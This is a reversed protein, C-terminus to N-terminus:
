HKIDKLALQMLFLVHWDVPVIADPGDANDWFNILQALSAGFSELKESCQNMWKVFGDFCDLVTNDYVNSGKFETQVCRIWRMQLGMISFVASFAESSSMFEGVDKPLPSASDEFTSFIETLFPELVQSIKQMLRIDDIAASNDGVYRQVNRCAEMIVPRMFDLVRPVLVRADSREISGCAMSIAEIQTTPKYLGVLTRTMSMVDLSSYKLMPYIETPPRDGRSMELSSLRVVHSLLLRVTSELGQATHAWQAKHNLNVGPRAATSNIIAHLFDFGLSIVIADARLLCEDSMCILGQEEMYALASSDRTGRLLTGIHPFLLM